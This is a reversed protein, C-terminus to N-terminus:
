GVPRPRHVSFLDLRVQPLEESSEWYHRFRDREKELDLREADTWPAARSRRLAQVQPALQDRLLPDKVLNWPAIRVQYNAELFDLAASVLEGDLEEGDPEIVRSIGFRAYCVASAAHGDRGGFHSVNERLTREVKTMELKSSYRLAFDYLGPTDPLVVAVPQAEPPSLTDCFAQLMMDSRDPWRWLAVTPPTVNLVSDGRLCHIAFLSPRHVPNGKTERESFEYLWRGRGPKRLGVSGPGWPRARTPARATLAEVDDRFSRGSTGISYTWASHQGLRQASELLRHTVLVAAQTWQRSEVMAAVRGCDEAVSPWPGSGIPESSACEFEGRPDLYHMPGGVFVFRVNGAAADPLAGFMAGEPVRLEEPWPTLRKLFWEPVHFTGARLRELDRFLEGRPDEVRADRDSLGSPPQYGGPYDAGFTKKFQEILNAAAEPEGDVALLYALSRFDFFGLLGEDKSELREACSEVLFSRLASRALATDGAGFLIDIDRMARAYQEGDSRARAREEYRGVAAKQSEVAEDPLVFLGPIVRAIQGATIVTEFVPEALQNLARAPIMSRRYPRHEGDVIEHETFLGEPIELAVVEDGQEAGDLEGFAAWAASVLVGRMEGIGPLSYDRDVLGDRVIAEADNTRHFVQM